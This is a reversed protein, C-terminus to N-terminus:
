ADLTSSSTPDKLCLIYFALLKYKVGYFVLGRRKKGAYNDETVDVYFTEKNCCIIHMTNTLSTFRVVISKKPM